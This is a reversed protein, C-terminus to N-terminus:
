EPSRVNSRSVSGRDPSKAAKGRLTNLSFTESHGGVLGPFTVGFEGIFDAPVIVSIVHERLRGDAIAIVVPEIMLQEVDLLLMRLQRRRIRWRLPHASRREFLKLRHLM